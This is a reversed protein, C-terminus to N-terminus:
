LSLCHGANEGVGVCHCRKGRQPGDGAAHFIGLVPNRRTQADTRSGVVGGVPRNRGRHAGVVSGKRGNLVGEAEAGGLNIGGIGTHVRGDFDHLLDLVLEDGCGFVADVLVLDLFFDGLELVLESADGFGCRERALVPELRVQRCGATRFGLANDTGEDTVGGAVHRDLLDVVRKGARRNEEVGAAVGTDEVLRGRDFIGADRQVDVRAADDAGDRDLGVRDVVDDRGACARGGEIAVIGGVARLVVDLDRALDPDFGDVLAGNGRLFDGEVVAGRGPRDVRGLCGGGRRVSRDGVQRDIRVGRCRLEALEDAQDVIGEARHGAGSCREARDGRADVQLFLEDGLQCVRDVLADATEDIGVHVLFRGAELGASGAAARWGPETSRWSRSASRARATGSISACPPQSLRWRREFAAGPFPRPMRAKHHM